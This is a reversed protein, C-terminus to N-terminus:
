EVKMRYVSNTKEEIHVPNGSPINEFRFDWNPFIKSPRAVSSTPMNQPWQTFKGDMLYIKHCNPIYQTRKTYKEGNQNTKGLFFRAARYRSV